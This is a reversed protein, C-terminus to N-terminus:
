ATPYRDVASMYTKVVGPDRSIDATRRESNEPWVGLVLKGDVSNLLLLWDLDGRAPISYHDEWGLWIHVLRWHICM